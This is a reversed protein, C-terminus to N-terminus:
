QNKLLEVAKNYQNDILNTIGDENQSVGNDIDYDPTIGVNDVCQGNPRLWKSSTYKVLGGSDLSYTHQVKGKGFSTKGVLIAGYSDKLATAFIEAASATNNNILIVIPIDQKLDTEDKVKKIKNNKDILSYVVKGKELFLEASEYAQELYGGTNDRLDIILKNMNLRSLESIAFNIQQSLTNSFISVKMYAINDEAMNYTVSPSNLTEAKVNYFELVENNRTVIINVGNNSENIMKALEEKSINTVDTDNVKIITDGTMIGAKHAPSNEVINVVTNDKLVIGIGVYTKNLENKLTNAKEEDLYSTYTDELYDTMGSIASDIIAKKDVDEYYQSVIKSYVNLFDQVNEDNALQAYSYGEDTSYNKTILVGTALASIISTVVIIIVIEILGYGKKM